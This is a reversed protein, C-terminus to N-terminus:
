PEMQSYEDSSAKISRESFKLEDKVFLYIGDM